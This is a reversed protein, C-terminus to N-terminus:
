NPTHTAGITHWASAGNVNLSKIQVVYATGATLGSIAVRRPNSCGGSCEFEVRRPHATTGVYTSDATGSVKHGVTYGYVPAGIEPDPPQRTM